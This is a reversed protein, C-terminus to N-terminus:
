PTVAVCASRTPRIDGSWEEVDVAARAACEAWVAGKQNDRARIRRLKAEGGDLVLVAPGASGELTVDTAQLHADTEASLGAVGAGRVESGQVTVRAGEAALVGIGSCRDVVLHSITAEGGRIQMADGAGPEASQLGSVRARLVELRGDRMVLGSSRGGSISLDIFRAQAGVLQVGGYNGAGDVSLRSLTARSRVIAVGAREANRSRVDTGDVQAEDGTLLGYEHGVLTVGSLHLRGRAVYLAPGRGGGAELTSISAEGGELHFATVAQQVKVRELRLAAPDTASVARSFPGEFSVDRVTARAGPALRLGHQESVGARLASGELVLESEGSVEVAPGRQGSFRIGRLEARGNQVQLGTLGGQIQVGTLKVAGRTRLCIAPPTTALVVSKGGVLEVSELVLGGSYIGAALRIRRGGPGLAQELRQLPHAESGDGGPPASADVFFDTSSVGADPAAAACSGHCVAIWAFLAAWRPRGKM